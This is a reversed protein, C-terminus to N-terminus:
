SLSKLKSSCGYEYECSVSYLLKHGQGQQRLANLRSRLESPERAPTQTKARQRHMQLQVVNANMDLEHGIEDNGDGGDLQVTVTTRQRDRDQNRPSFPTKDDTQFNLFVIQTTALDLKKLNM